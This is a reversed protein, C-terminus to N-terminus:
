TMNAIINPKIHFLECLYNDMINYKKLNFRLFSIDMLKVVNSSLQLYKDRCDVISTHSDRCM